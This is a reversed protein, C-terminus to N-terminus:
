QIHMNLKQSVSTCATGRFVSPRHKWTAIMHWFYAFINRATWGFAPACVELVICLVRPKWTLLEAGLTTHSLESGSLSQMLWLMSELCQLSAYACCTALEFVAERALRDFPYASELIQTFCYNCLVHVYKLLICLEWTIVVTDNFGTCVKLYATCLTVCPTWKIKRGSRCCPVVTFYVTCYKRMVSLCVVVLQAFPYFFYVEFTTMATQLLDQKESNHANVFDVVSKLHQNTEKLISPRRKRRTPSLSTRAKAMPVSKSFSPSKLPCLSFGNNTGKSSKTTILPALVNGAQQTIFTHDTCRKSDVSDINRSINTDNDSFKVNDRIMLAAM